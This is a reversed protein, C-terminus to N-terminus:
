AFCQELDQLVEFYLDRNECTFLVTYQERDLDKCFDINKINKNFLSLRNDVIYEEKIGFSENLIQKAVVGCEGYPYIIFNHKGSNLAQEIANRIKWYKTQM